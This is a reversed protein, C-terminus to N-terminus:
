NNYILFFPFFSFFQTYHKKKNEGRWNSGLISCTRMGGGSAMRNEGGLLPTLDGSLIRRSIYSTDSAIIQKRMLGDFKRRSCRCCFVVLSCSASVIYVRFLHDDVSVSGQATKGRSSSTATDSTTITYREGVKLWSEKGNKERRTCM